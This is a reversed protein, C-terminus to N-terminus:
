RYCFNNWAWLVHKRLADWEQWSDSRPSELPDILTLWRRAESLMIRLAEGSSAWGEFILPVVAYVVKAVGYPLLLGRPSRGSRLYKYLDLSKLTLLHLPALSRAATSEHQLYKEPFQAYNELPFGLVQEILYRFVAGCIPVVQLWTERATDPYLGHRPRLKFETARSVLDSLIVGQGHMFVLRDSAMAAFRRGREKYSFHYQGWLLLLSEACALITKNVWYLVELEDHTIDSAGPMYYLSEAMRNLVLRIGSELQIQRPDVTPGSNIVDQGYLTRSGYRSEYLSITIPAPGMPLPGVRNTRMYDPRVWRLSTEVGFEVTLQHSLERFLSRYLPSFTAVDIEYDSLFRLKRDQIMVSGEGRGFSGRLIIAEPEMRSRVAAVIRQLHAEITQEALPHNLETFKGMAM